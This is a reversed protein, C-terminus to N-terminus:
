SVLSQLYKIRADSDTGGSEVIRKRLAEADVAKKAPAPAAGKPKAPIKPPVPKAATSAPKAKSKAEISAHLQAAQFAAVQPWNPNEKIGPFAEVFDRFLKTVPHSRDALVPYGQLVQAMAQQHSKLYQERQPILQTVAKEANRKIGRLMSKVASPSEDQVQIGNARMQAVVTEPDDSVQDMLDSVQEVVDQAKLKEAQLTRIDDIRDFPGSSQRPAAPQAPTSRLEEVEQRLQSLQAELAERAEKEAKTKAVEKGIRKNIAEQVNAPLPDEAEESESEAEADVAEAEGDGEPKEGEAQEASEEAAEDAEAKPEEAETDEAPEAAAEPQEPDEGVLESAIKSLYGRANALAQEATNQPPDAVVTSDKAM